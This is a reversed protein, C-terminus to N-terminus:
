VPEEEDVLEAACDLEAVLVAGGVIVGEALEMSLAVGLRVPVLVAVRELEELAVSVAFEDAVPEDDRVPLATGDRVGVQLPECVGAEVREAVPDGDPVRLAETVVLMVPVELLEAVRVSVGLLETEREDFVVGVGVPVDVGLLEAVRLPVDLLEAVREDLLVGEGVLVPVELPEAVREDLLVGVDVPVDVGLLEAVRVELTMGVVELVPVDLLERDRVPVAVDDVVSDELGVGVAVGVCGSQRAGTLKTATCYPTLPVKGTAEKWTAEETSAPLAPMYM